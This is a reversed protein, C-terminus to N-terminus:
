KEGTPPGAAEIMKSLHELGQEVDIVGADVMESIGFLANVLAWVTVIFDPDKESGYVATWRDTIRTRIQASLQRLEHEPVNAYQLVARLLRREQSSTLLFQHAVHLAGQTPFGSSSGFQPDASAFTSATGSELFRDVLVAAVLGPLDGFYDYVLQRSVGADAALGAMSLKELGDRLAIATAVNLLLRRREDARLYPRKRGGSLGQDQVPTM